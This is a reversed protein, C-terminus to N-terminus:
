CTRVVYRDRDKSAARPQRVSPPTSPPSRATCTDGDVPLFHLDGKFVGPLALRGGRITLHV